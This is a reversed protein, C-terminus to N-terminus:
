HNFNINLVLTPNTSSALNFRLHKFGLLERALIWAGSATITTVPTLNRPDASTNFVSAVFNTGDNSVLMTLTGTGDVGDSQFSANEIEKDPIAIDANGDATFTAVVSTRHVEHTTSVTVAM